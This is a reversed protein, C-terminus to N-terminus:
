LHFNQVLNNMLISQQSLGRSTAATQEATASTTQVVSTIQDIGETVQTISVTQNDIASVVVNM